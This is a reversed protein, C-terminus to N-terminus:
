DSTPQLRFASRNTIMRWVAYAQCHGRCTVTEDWCCSPRPYCRCVEASPWITRDTRSDYGGRTSLSVCGCGGATISIDAHTVRWIFPTEKLQLNTATRRCRCPRSQIFHRTISSWCPVTCARGDSGVRGTHGPCRSWTWTVASDGDADAIFLM